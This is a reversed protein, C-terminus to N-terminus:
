CEAKVLFFLDTKKGTKGRVPWHASKIIEKRKSHPKFVVGM